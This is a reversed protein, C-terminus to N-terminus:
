ALSRSRIYSAEAVERLFTDGDLKILAPVADSKGIVPFAVMPPVSPTVPVDVSVPFVATPPVRATVPAIVAVDVILPVVIGVVFVSTVVTSVCVSLLLVRVLGVILVLAIEPPVILLAVIPAVVGEVPDKVDNLAVLRDTVFVIVPLTLPFAPVTVFPTTVVPAKASGVQIVDNLLLLTPRPFTGSVSQVFADFILLPVILKALSPM